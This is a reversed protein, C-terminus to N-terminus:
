INNTTPCVPIVNEPLGDIQITTPPKKLKVFLTDLMQQGQLGTTIQWGHVYGEQGQTICLEMMYNTHIMVPLGLCLALKGAIHKDTSSPQQDWLAKQMESTLQAVQKTGSVKKLDGPSVKSTDESYFDVLDQGTEQAFRLAGM